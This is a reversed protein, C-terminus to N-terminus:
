PMSSRSAARASPNLVFPLRPRPRGPLQRRTSSSCIVEAGPDPVVTTMTLHSRQALSCLGSTDVSAPLFRILPNSAACREDRLPGLDLSPKVTQQVFMVLGRVLPFQPGVGAKPPPPRPSVPPHCGRLGDGEEM